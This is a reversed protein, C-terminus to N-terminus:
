RIPHVLAIRRAFEAFGLWQYLKLAPANRLDVACTVPCPQVASAQALGLQMLRLGLGKGRM